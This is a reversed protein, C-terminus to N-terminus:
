RTAVSSSPTWSFGTSDEHAFPHGAPLACQYSERGTSLDYVLRNPCTPEDADEVGLLSYYHAAYADQRAAEFDCWEAVVELKAAVGDRYDNARRGYKGTDTTMGAALERYFAADARMAAAARRCELYGLRDAQRRTLAAAHTTM